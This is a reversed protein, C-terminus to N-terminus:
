PLRRHEPGLHIPERYVEIKEAFVQLKGYDLGKPIKALTIHPQYPDFDSRLGARTLAMHRSVLRYDVLKLVLARPTSADEPNPGFIDHRRDQMCLDLVLPTTQPQLVPDNWDGPVRSWMLTVHLKAAPLWELDFPAGAMRLAQAYHSLLAEPAALKREMRTPHLDEPM